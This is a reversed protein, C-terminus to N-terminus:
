SAAIFSWGGALQRKITQLISIFLPAHPITCCKLRSKITAM